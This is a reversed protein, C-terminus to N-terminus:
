AAIGVRQTQVQGPWSGRLLQHLGCPLAEAAQVDQDVVNRHAERHCGDGLDVFLEEVPDHRDVRLRREQGDAVRRTVHPVAAADDVDGAGVGYARCRAVSGVGRALTREFLQGQDRRLLQAAPADGDVGDGWTRGVGVQQAARVRDLGQLADDG